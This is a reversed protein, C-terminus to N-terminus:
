PKASAANSSDLTCLSTIGAVPRLPQDYKWTRSITIMVGASQYGSVDSIVRYHGHRSIGYDSELGVLQWFAKRVPPGYPM